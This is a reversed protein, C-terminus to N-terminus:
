PTTTDDSEEAASGLGQLAERFPRNTSLTKRVLAEELEPDCEGEAHMHSLGMSLAITDTLPRLLDAVGTAPDYYVAESDDGAPVRGGSSPLLPAEYSDSVEMLLPSQCRDCVTEVEGSIELLIRFSGGSPLITAVARVDGGCLDAHEAATFFSEGLRIEHREPAVAACPVEIEWPKLLKEM